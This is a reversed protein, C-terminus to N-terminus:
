PCGNECKIRIDIIMILLHIISLLENISIM